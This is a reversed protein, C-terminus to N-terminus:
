IGDGRTVAFICKESLTGKIDGVDELSRGCYKSAFFKQSYLGDPILLYDGYAKSVDAHWKTKRADRPGSKVKSNKKPAVITTIDPEETTTSTTSQTTSTGTTTPENEDVVTDCDRDTFGAANRNFAAQFKVAKYRFLGDTFVDPVVRTVTRLPFVTFSM